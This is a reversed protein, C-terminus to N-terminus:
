KSGAERFRRLLGSLGNARLCLFLGIAMEIVTVAQNILYKHSGDQGWLRSTEGHSSYWWWIGNDFVDPIAFSLIYVGIIVFAATEVDHVSGNLIPEQNKSKPLLWNSVSVPFKIMLLAAALLLGVQATALFRVLTLENEVNSQFQLIIQYQYLGTKIAYILAFIGLVRIGIALLEISKM